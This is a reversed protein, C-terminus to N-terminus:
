AIDYVVQNPFAIQVGFVFNIALRFEQHDKSYWFDFSEMDDAMDTGFYLNRPDAAFIANTGNLGAVGVIKTNTGPMVIMMNADVKPDYHYLNKETLELTLSTFEDVGMYIVAKDIIQYPIKTFVDKTRGWVTTETSAADIAGANQAIELLGSSALPDSDTTSAQWIKAEIQSKVSDVVGAIFEEEFPLVEAGAKILNEKNAFSARLTKDCFAMNIKAPLVDLMRESVTSTGAEDWGCTGGDGITADTSLLNLRASNKIGTQVNLYKISDAGFVVERILGLKETDVYNSLNNEIM